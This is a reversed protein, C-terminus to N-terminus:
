SFARRYIELTREVTNSWSFQEVRALAKLSLEERLDSNLALQALKDRIDLLDNPDAALGAEGVVEPLAGSAGFVVPLGCSMGELAPLGFGEYHSVFLLAIASSYLAPLDDDEVFGTFVIRDDRVSQDTLLGECKWGKRGAIILFTETEPYERRFCAFAKATNLLNKRPELTSLALFYPHEPISYKSRIRSLVTPDEVRTFRTRDVALPIVTVRHPDAEYESLFVTRTAESDTIFHADRSLAFQIGKEVAGVTEDLHFEPFIRHTCDHITVVFRPRSSAKVCRYAQPLTLHVVDFDSVDIPKGQHASELELTLGAQRDLSRLFEVMGEPVIRQLWGVIKQRIKAVSVVIIRWLWRIRSDALLRRAMIMRSLSSIDYVTGQIYCFFDMPEASM